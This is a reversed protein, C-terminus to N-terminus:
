SAEEDWRGPPRAVLEAVSAAYSDAAALIDRVCEDESQPSRIVNRVEAELSERNM